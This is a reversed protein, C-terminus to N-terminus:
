PHNAYFYLLKMAIWLLSSDSVTHNQSKAHSKGKTEFTSPLNNFVAMQMAKSIIITAMSRNSKTVISVYVCPSFSLYFYIFLGLSFFLSYISLDARLVFVSISLCRCVDNTSPNSSHRIAIWRYEHVNHM